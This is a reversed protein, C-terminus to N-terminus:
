HCSRKPLFPALVMTVSLLFLWPYIREWPRIADGSSLLAFGTLGLNRLILHWGIRAKKWLGNCGCEIDFKGRALNVSVAGTFILFLSLASYVAWPSWRGLLLMIGVTLELFPIFIAVPKLALRPTLEYKKLVGVFWGLNLWKTLAGLVLITGVIIRSATQVYYAFMSLAMFSFMQNVDFRIRGCLLGRLEAWPLRSGEAVCVEYEAGDGLWLKSPLRLGKNGSLSILAFRASRCEWGKITTAAEAGFYSVSSFTLVLSRNSEDLVLVM